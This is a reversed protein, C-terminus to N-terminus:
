LGSEATRVLIRRCNECRVVAEPAATRVATLENGALELHCGECRRQHLRAAGVGGNAAAVKEYLALLDAPIDAAVAIRDTTRAGTQVDIDAFQEDRRAELQAREALVEDRRRTLDALGGEVGERQEMIELLEDELTSQRRALSTIEHQLSELEKAPLGGNALRQEDRGARTRVTDVENELKRQEGALDDVRTQADIVETQLSDATATAASIAGLEPLTRRRHALQALATDAAQLDLLRLQAAPDSNV